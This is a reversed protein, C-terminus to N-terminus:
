TKVVVLLRKNDDLCYSCLKSMWGSVVRASLELFEREPMVHLAGFEDEWKM